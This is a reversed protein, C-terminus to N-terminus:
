ESILFNKVCLDMDEENNQATSDILKILELASRFYQTKEKEVWTLSGQWSSNQRYNIKILFTAKNGQNNLIEIKEMAKLRERKILKINEKKESFSRIETGRQPYQLMDMLREMSLLLEVVGYFSIQNELIDSYIRGEIDYHFKDICIVSVKFEESLIGLNHSLM